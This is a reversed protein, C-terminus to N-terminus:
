IKKLTGVIHTHHYLLTHIIHLSTYFNNVILSAEDSYNEILSIVLRGAYPTLMALM